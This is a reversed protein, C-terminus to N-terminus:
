ELLLSTQGIEFGDNYLMITYKGPIFEKSNNCLISVMMEKNLYSFSKKAAFFSRTGNPLSFMESESGDKSMEKGDPTLIRVYVEKNGPKAMRNDAVNFVVKIKETKKAKNTEDEKKGGSKFRVGKAIINRANLASGMAVVHKLEEKEKSLQDTKNKETSLDQEVKQKEATIVQNLTNLSDITKVYGKMIERLTEAEKKLKSIIYADNKHKQAQKELEEIKKINESLQEKLAADSTELAEYDSKLQALEAQFANNKEIYVIKEQIVTETKITQNWYLWALGAIIATQLFVLFLLGRNKKEKKPQEPQQTVPEM